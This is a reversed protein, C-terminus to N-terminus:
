ANFNAFWTAFQDRTSQKADVHTEGADHVVPYAGNNKAFDMIAQAQTSCDEETAGTLLEAPVGAEAAVKERMLRITEAAKLKNVEERLDSAQKQAAKLEDSPTALQQQAEALQRQIDEVGKRASNIDAGNIGMLKDIQEQTADPFMETIDSRKM